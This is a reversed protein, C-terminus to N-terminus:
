FPLDDVLEGNVVKQFRKICNMQEISEQSLYRVKRANEFDIVQLDHYQKMKAEHERSKQLAEENKREECIRSLAPMIRSIGQGCARAIELLSEGELAMAWAVNYLTTEHNDSNAAGAMTGISVAESIQGPKDKQKGTHTCYEICDEQSGNAAEFHHSNGFVKGLASKRVPSTLELYGQIHLNNQAGVEECCTWFRFHPIEEQIYINLEYLDSLCWTRHPSDCAIFDKSIATPLNQPWLTLLWRRSIREATAPKATTAKKKKPM